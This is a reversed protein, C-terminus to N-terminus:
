IELLNFIQSVTNELNSIANKKNMANELNSIGRLISFSADIIHQTNIDLTAIENDSITGALFIVKKNHKKAVKAIEIPAKGMFSQLDLKGEGTIVIDIEKIEIELYEIM